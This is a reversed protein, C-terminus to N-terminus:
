AGMPSSPPHKMLDLTMGFGILADDNGNLVNVTAGHEHEAIATNDYGRIVNVDQGNIKM